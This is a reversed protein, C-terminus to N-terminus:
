QDHDPGARQVVGFEGNLVALAQLGEGVLELVVDADNHAGVELLGACCDAPLAQDVVGVDVLGELDVLAQANGALEEDVECRSAHGNRRLHEIGDRGLEKGVQDGEACNTRSCCLRLQVTLEGGTKREGNAELVAGVTPKRHRDVGNAARSRLVVEQAHCLLTQCGDGPCATVLVAEDNQATPGLAGVEVLVVDLSHALQQPLLVEGLDHHDVAGVTRM